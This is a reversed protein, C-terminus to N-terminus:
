LNDLISDTLPDVTGSAPSKAGSRTAASTAVRHRRATSQRRREAAALETQAAAHLQSQLGALQATFRAVEVQRARGAAEETTRLARATAQAGALEAEGSRLVLTLTIGGLLVAAGIVGAVKGWPSARKLDLAAQAEAARRVAELHEEEERDLRAEIAILELENQRRRQEREAALAQRRDLEAQAAVAKQAAEAEAAELRADEERARRRRDAVIEDEIREVELGHLERLSFMVSGEAGDMGTSRGDQM